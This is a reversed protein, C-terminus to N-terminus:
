VSSKDGTREGRRAVTVVTQKLRGGVIWLEGGCQSLRRLLLETSCKGRQPQEAGIVGNQALRRARHDSFPLPDPQGDSEDFIGCRICSERSVVPVDTIAGRPEHLRDRVNPRQQSQLRFGANGRQLRQRFPRAAREQFEFSSDVPRGRGRQEVPQEAVQQGLRTVDRQPFHILVEDGAFMEDPKRRARHVRVVVDFAPRQM